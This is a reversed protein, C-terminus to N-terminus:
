GYSRLIFENKIKIQMDLKMIIAFPCSLVTFINYWSNSRDVFFDQSFNFSALKERISFFCKPNSICEKLHYRRIDPPKLSM